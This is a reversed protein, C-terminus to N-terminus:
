EARAEGVTDAMAAGRRGMPRHPGVTTDVLVQHEIESNLEAGVLLIFVSLYTWMM